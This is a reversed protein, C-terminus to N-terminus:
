SNCLRKKGCSAVKFLGYLTRVLFSVPIFRRSSFSFHCHSLILLLRLHGGLAGSRVHVSTYVTRNWSVHCGRGLYCTMSCAYIELLNCSNIKQKKRQLVRLLRTYAASGKSFYRRKKTVKRFYFGIYFTEPAGLNPIYRQCTFHQQTTQRYKWAAVSLGLWTLM